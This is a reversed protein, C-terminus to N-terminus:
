LYGRVKSGVGFDNDVDSAAWIPRAIARNVQYARYNYRELREIYELGVLGTTAIFVIKVVSFLLAQM